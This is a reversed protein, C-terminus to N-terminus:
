VIAIPRVQSGTAGVLKLPLVVITFARDIAAAALEELDLNEILAIGRGQILLSHVPLANHRPDFAEYMLCDAGTALAGRDALWAAGDANVGPLGAARGLYREPDSWWAGWGTRVLLVDGKQLVQGQGSLTAELLAGDIGFAPELAAIGLHRPVDALVARGVIPAMAQIGLEGLGGTGRQIDDAAVDGFLRGHVSIHGLADIHTGAHNLTILLDHAASYGGERLVDGHRRLLALSFRPLGPPQPMDAHLPQGLDIIRARGIRAVLDDDTTSAM